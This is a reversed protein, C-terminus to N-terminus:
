TTSTSRHVRGVLRPVPHHAGLLAAPREPADDGRLRRGALPAAPQRHRARRRQHRLHRAAHAAAARRPLGGERHHEEAPAQGDVEEFIVLQLTAKLPASYTMDREICEEVTYKPEGLATASSSSRSTRTSTPSRSCTRSSASSRRRGRPERERRGPSLLSEFARTQIDLLHPMQM